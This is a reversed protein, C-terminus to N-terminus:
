PQTAQSPPWGCAFFLDASAAQRIHRSLVRHAPLSWFALCPILFPRMRLGHTGGKRLSTMCATSLQNIRCAHVAIAFVCTSGRCLIGIADTLDALHTLQISTNPSCPLSKLPLEKRQSNQSLQCSCCEGACWRQQMDRFGQIGALDATM